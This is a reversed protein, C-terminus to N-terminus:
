MSHVNYMCVTYEMYLTCPVFLWSLKVYFICQISIYLTCVTKCTKLKQQLGNYKCNVIIYYNKKLCYSGYLQPFPHCCTLVTIHM